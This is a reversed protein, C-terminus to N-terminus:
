TCAGFYAIWIKEKLTLSSFGQGSTGSTSNVDKCLFYPVACGPEIPPADVIQCVDSLQFPSTDDTTEPALDLQGDAIQEDSSDPIDAAADQLVEPSDIEDHQDPVDHQEPPGDPKPEVIEVGADPVIDFRVDEQEVEETKQCETEGASQWAKRIEEKQEELKVPDLPGFRAINCGFRDVVVVEYSTALWADWLRLQESDQIVAQTAKPVLEAVINPTAQVELLNVFVLPAKGGAAFVEAELKGLLELLTRCHTCKVSGFFFVAGTSEFSSLCLTQGSTSSGPNLDSLCFEPASKCNCESSFPVCRADYCVFGEPCETDALCGQICTNEKCYKGAPCLRTSDCEPLFCRGTAWDCVQGDPCDKNQYCGSKICGTGLASGVVAVLAVCLNWRCVM